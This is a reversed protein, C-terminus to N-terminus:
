NVCLLFLSNLFCNVSSSYSSLLFPESISIFVCVNNDAYQLRAPSGQVALDDRRAIPQASCLGTAQPKTAQRSQEKLNTLMLVTVDVKKSVM